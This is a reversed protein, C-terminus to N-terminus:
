CNGEIPCDVIAPIGSVPNASTATLNIITEARFNQDPNNIHQPPSLRCCTAFYAIYPGATAYTHTVKKEIIIWDHVADVFTVLFSSDPSQGGDEFTIFAFNVHDSVNPLSSSFCRLSTATAKFELSNAGPM